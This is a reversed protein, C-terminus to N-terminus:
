TTYDGPSAKIQDLIFSDKTIETMQLQPSDIRHSNVLSTISDISRNLQHIDSESKSDSKLISSFLVIALSLLGILFGLITAKSPISYNRFRIIIRRLRKM